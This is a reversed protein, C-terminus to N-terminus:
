VARQHHLPEPTLRYGLANMIANVNDFSQDQSMASRLNLDIDKAKALAQLSTLLIATNAEEAYADIIEGIYADVEGPHTRFYEDEVQRFTRLSRTTM